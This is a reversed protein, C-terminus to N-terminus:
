FRTVMTLTGKFYGWNKFVNRAYQIAEKGERSVFFYHTTGNASNLM